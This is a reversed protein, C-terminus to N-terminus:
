GWRPEARRGRDGGRMQAPSLPLPRPRWGGGGPGSGAEATATTKLETVLRGSCRAEAARARVWTSSCLAGSHPTGGSRHTHLSCYKTPVCTCVGKCMDAPVGTCVCVCVCVAEFAVFSPKAKVRVTLRAPVGSRPQCLQTPSGWARRRGRRSVALARQRSATFGKHSSLGVTVSPCREKFAFQSQNEGSRIVSLM